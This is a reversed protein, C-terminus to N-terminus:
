RGAKTNYVDLAKSVASGVVFCAIAEVLGNIGVFAIIFAFVNNTGLMSAFGQIYETNYFFLVLASMFFITNLLPGVLNTIAIAATKNMNTKHLGAYLLGSLWGMLIRPVMCVFLTAWPNIGLLTAGFPSIGFCQIFSTAGFIGGLIAGSVPGLVIAGVTVPVVILTIELGFTKIYGIPTFAMLLIVAVLLAIQVLKATNGTTRTKM